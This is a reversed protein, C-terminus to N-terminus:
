DGNPQAVNNQLVLGNKADIGVEYVAPGSKIDFSYRLGSGGAERELLQSIIIGPRANRALRRALILSVHAHHAM